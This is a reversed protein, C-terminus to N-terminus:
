LILPHVKQGSILFYIVITHIIVYINFNFTCTSLYINRLINFRQFIVEPVRPLGTSSANQMKRHFEEILSSQQTTRRELHQTILRRNHLTYPAVRSTNHAVRSTNRLLNHPAVQLTSNHSLNRLQATRLLSPVSYFGRPLRPLFFAASAAETSATSEAETSLAVHTSGRAM